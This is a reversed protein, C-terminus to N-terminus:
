VALINLSGGKHALIAACPPM